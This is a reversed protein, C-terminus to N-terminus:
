AGGGGWAAPISNYDPITTAGTFCDITVSPNHSAMWTYLEGAGTVTGALSGCNEFTNGFNDILTTYRFLEDPVTVLDDCSYFSYEFTTANINYRFLDTPLSTIGSNWFIDKFNEALTNYDFMGVPINLLM